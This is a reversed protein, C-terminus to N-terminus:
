SLILREPEGLGQLIEIEEEGILIDDTQIVPDEVRFGMREQARVCADLVRLPNAPSRVGILKPQVIVDIDSTDLHQSTLNISRNSM